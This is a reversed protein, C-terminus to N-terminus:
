KRYFFSKYFDVLYFFLGCLLKLYDITKFISPIVPSNGLKEYVVITENM